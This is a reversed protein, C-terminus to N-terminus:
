HAGKRCVPLTFQFTAGHDDNSTAWLRGDHAEIISKCIPLGMGMGGQKSTVFAPFLRDAHAADIGVGVDQVDVLLQDHDHLHSGIRLERPRDDVKAM